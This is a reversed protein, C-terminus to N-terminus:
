RITEILVIRNMSPKTYPQKLGGFWKVQIRELAIGYKQVLTNAVNVARKKSLENNKDASGASKDAYGSVMVMVDPNRKLFTATKKIVEDQKADSIDFKDDLFNVTLFLDTENDNTTTTQAISASTKAPVKEVVKESAVAPLVKVTPSKVIVLRNKAPALYPQVGGGFWKLYIRKSNIAYKRILTNAVTVARRKSMENNGEISGTSKDAYGSITITSNPNQKLFNIINAMADEQKKNVITAKNITFFIRENLNSAVLPLAAAPVIPVVVPAVEKVVPKVTDSVVAPKTETSAIAAPEVAPPAVSKDEVKPAVELKAVQAPKEKPEPIRYTLGVALSAFLDVPLPTFAKDNYNDTAINGDLIVNLDLLSSLHCDSQLGGRLFGAFPPTDTNKNLYAAGLGFFASFDIKRNADYGKALNTLNVVYDVTLNEGPLTNVATGVPVTYWNIVNYGLMGRLGVVPSFNYGAALRGLFGVNKAPSVFPKNPNFFNNGEGMFLNLGGNAGVFWGPKFTNTTSKNADQANVSFGVGLVLCMAAVILKKM